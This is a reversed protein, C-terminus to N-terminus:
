PLVLRWAGHELVFFITLERRLPTRVRIKGRQGEVIPKGLVEAKTLAVLQPSANVETGRIFFDRGSMGALEELTVGWSKTVGAFYKAEKEDEEVSAIRARWETAKRDCNGKVDVSLVDYVAGYDKARINEILEDFVPRLPPPPEEGCAPLLLALVLLAM